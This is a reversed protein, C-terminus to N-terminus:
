DNDEGESPLYKDVVGRIEEEIVARSGYDAWSAAVSTLEDVLKLKDVFM